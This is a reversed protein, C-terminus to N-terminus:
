DPQQGRGAAEELVEGKRGDRPEEGVTYDAGRQDGAAAALLPGPRQGNGGRAEPQRGPLHPRHEADCASREEGSPHCPLLQQHQGGGGEQRREVPGPGSALWASPAPAGGGVPRNRRTGGPEMSERGLWWCRGGSRSFRDMVVGSAGSRGSVGPAIRTSCSSPGLGPT